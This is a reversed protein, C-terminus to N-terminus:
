KARYLRNERIYDEVDPTVLYRIPIGSAVRDRLETSSVSVEPSDHLFVIRELYERPLKRRAETTDYGPRAAAVVKCMSLLKGPEYWLLIDLVSDAGMIFYLDAEDGYERRLEAITDVTYSPGSRELEMRSVEFHPNDRTALVTMNYRDEADSIPSDPKHPPAGAPIFIVKDLGLRIRSEEAIILHGIHIPDFTGGIIGIRTSSAPM